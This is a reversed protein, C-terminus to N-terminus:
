IRGGEVHQKLLDGLIQVANELGTLEWDGFVTISIKHEQVEHPQKEFVTEGKGNEVVVLAGTSPLIIEITAEGGHGADGGQPGTSLLRVTPEEPLNADVEYTFM